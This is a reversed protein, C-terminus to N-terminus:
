RHKDVQGHFFAVVVFSVLAFLIFLAKLNIKDIMIYGWKYYDQITGNIPTANNAKASTATFAILIAAAGIALYGLKDDNM